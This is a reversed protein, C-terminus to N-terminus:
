QVLTRIRELLLGQDFDSKVIYDAAGADRGRQRDEASARSTVLISPVTRLSPDSRVREIFTFGDIGPMEVDVLYLAYTGARAKELGEEGSSALTVDYGASELISQELMRTTLSDDVVLISRRETRPHSPPAGLRRAAAVLGAPDLVLRPRGGADTSAGVVSPVAPALPPLPRVVVNATGLVTDVGFAAAGAAAEVVFVSSPRDNRAERGDPRLSRTLSAFPISNGDYMVSDGQPTTVIEEPAVRLTRRVAELPVAAALDGADVLLAPLSAVSLPVLLEVFTGAGPESRMTARGGLREAAERVVDLGIGRGAVDTVTDSTSIGGELLLRLLMEPDDSRPGSASVGKRRLVRRVAEFDIGRGDDACAFSVLPGRRSVTVTVRGVPPKGAARREDASPEIGHAVANRVLQLLAGQIAALMGSDVRVDGRGEFTVQRGLAQGVDRAARELFLFVASAPVLRLRAAADGAQRLQRDMQDVGAALSRELSGIHGKLEDITSLAKEIGVPEAGAGAQRARFRALQGATLETLNRIRVAQDLTAGLVGLHAQAEAVADILAEMDAADPRFPQIPAAPRDASPAEAGSEPSALAAVRADIRDLLGLVLDIQARPASGELDRIAGFVDELRHAHEAIEPQRVVRAAGKLTHALRLLRGIAGGSPVGKELDLVGRGLQELLEQAEVRFYKYRDPTM